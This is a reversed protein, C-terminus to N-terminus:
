VPPQQPRPGDVPESDDEDDDEDDAAPSAPSSKKRADREAIKAEWERDELFENLEEKDTCTKVVQLTNTDIVVLEQVEDSGIGRDRRLVLTAADILKVSRAKYTKEAESM